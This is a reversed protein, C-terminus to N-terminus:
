SVFTLPYLKQYSGKDENENKIKPKQLQGKPAVELILWSLILNLHGVSNYIISWLIFVSYLFCFDHHGVQAHLLHSVFCYLILELKYILGSKKKIIIKTVLCPM